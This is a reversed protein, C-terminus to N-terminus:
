WEWKRQPKRKRGYRVGPTRANGTLTRRTYLDPRVTYIFSSVDQRRGWEDVLPYTMTLTDKARTIAVYLLRREEDLSNPDLENSAYAHPICGAHARILYVHQWELGKASHITSLVLRDDASDALEGNDNARNPPDLAFDALMPSLEDYSKALALLAKLDRERRPWDDYKGQMHPKYYEVVRELRALPTAFRDQLEQFLGALETLQVKDGRGSWDRLVAPNLAGGFAEHIQAMTNPGVGKCLGLVRKLSLVENTNDLVRLFALADKIHASETFKFGGYKVFPVKSRRLEVELQYSNRSARFLIAIQSLPVGLDNLRKVERRIFRAEVREDPAAVLCPREGGVQSTRLQKRFSSKMQKLVANSLDLIPQNSRYNEELVIKRTNEFRDAFEFLNSVRAGRFAYISQADDGVVMVNARDGAILQVIRDQLLNTDQYEDVMIHTFRRRVATRADESRELASILLLLLDDFDVMKHEAKYSAYDRAISEIGELASFHHSYNHQLIIPIPQRQNVAKSLISAITGSKPFRGIKLKKPLNTRLGGIVSQADGSDLITFREDLGIADGFRRLCLAAFSHFTGGGFEAQDDSLIERARALMEDAARRTFTLLLIGKSDVGSQVLEALRQVLTRTKGTGAGAIVMVPGDLTTAAELQAPNLM